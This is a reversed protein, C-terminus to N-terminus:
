TSFKAIWENRIFELSVLYLQSVDNFTDSELECQVDTLEIDTDEVGDDARHDVVTVTQDPISPIISKIGWSRM